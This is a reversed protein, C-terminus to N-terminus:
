VISSNMFALSVRNKTNKELATHHQPKELGGGVLILYSAFRDQQQIGEPLSIALTLPFLLGTFSSHSAAPLVFAQKSIHGHKLANPLLLFGSTTKHLQSSALAGLLLETHPLTHPQRAGSPLAKELPLQPVTPINWIWRHSGLSASSSLFKGPQLWTPCFLLRMSSNDHDFDATSCM